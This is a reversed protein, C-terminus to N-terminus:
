AIRKPHKPPKKMERFLEEAETTEEADEKPKPAPHAEGTAWDVMDDKKLSSITELLSALKGRTEDDVCWFVPLAARM